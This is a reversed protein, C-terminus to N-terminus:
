AHNHEVEKRKQYVSYLAAELLLWLAACEHCIAHQLAPTHAPLPM